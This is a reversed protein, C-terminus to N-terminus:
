IIHENGMVSDSEDSSLDSSPERNAFKRQLIKRIGGDSSDSSKDDSSEEEEEEEDSSEEEEEEESSEGGLQQDFITGHTSEKAGMGMGYESSIDESDQETEAVPGGGFLSEEDDSEESDHESSTDKYIAKGKRQPNRVVAAIKEIPQYRQIPAARRRTKRASRKIGDDIEVDQSLLQFEEDEERKKRKRKKPTVQVDFDSLCYYYDEDDSHMTTTTKTNILTPVSRRPSPWERLSELKAAISSLDYEGNSEEDDPHHQDDTLSLARPKSDNEVRNVVQQQKSILSESSKQSSSGEMPVRKKARLKREDEQQQRRPQLPLKQSMSARSRKSPSEHLNQAKEMSKYYPARASAASTSHMTTNINTNSLPQKKPTRHISVGKSMKRVSLFIVSEDSSSSTGTSNEDHNMSTSCMVDFPGKKSNSSPLPARVQLDQSRSLYVRINIDSM